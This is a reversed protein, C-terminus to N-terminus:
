ETHSNLANENGSIDNQRKRSLEKGKYNLNGKTVANEPLVGLVANALLSKGSGSAGVVAVIEGQYITIDLKHIVDLETEPYVNDSAEFTLSFDRVELLPVQDTQRGKDIRM